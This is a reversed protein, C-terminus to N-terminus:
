FDRMLSLYGRGEYREDNDDVKLITRFDARLMITRSVRAVIGGGVNFATVTRSEISTNGAKGDSLLEMGGAAAVYPVFKDMLKWPFPIMLGANFGYASINYDLSSYSAELEVAFGGLKDPFWLLNVGGTAESAETLYGAFAGVSVKSSFPAPPFMKDEGEPVVVPEPKNEKLEELQSLSKDLVTVSQELNDLDRNMSNYNEEASMSTESIPPELSSNTGTLATNRLFGRTGNEPLVVETFEGSPAVKEVQKGKPLIDVVSSNVDPLEFLLSGDRIVTAKEAYSDIYSITILCIIICIFTFTNKM